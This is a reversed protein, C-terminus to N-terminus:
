YELVGERYDFLLVLQVISQGTLYNM